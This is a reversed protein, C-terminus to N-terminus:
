RKKYVIIEPDAGNLGYECVLLYNEDAVLGYCRELSEKEVQCGYYMKNDDLLKVKEGNLLTYEMNVFEGKLEFLETIEPLDKINLANFEEIMKKM